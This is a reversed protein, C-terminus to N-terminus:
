YTINAVTLCKRAEDRVGGGGVPVCDPRLDHVDPAHLAAPQQSIVSLLHTNTVRIHQVTDVAAGHQEHRTGLEPANNCSMNCSLSTSPPAGTVGGNSSDHTPSLYQPYCPIAPDSADCGDTVAPISSPNSSSNLM